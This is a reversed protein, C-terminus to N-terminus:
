EDKKSARSVARWGLAVIAIGISLYICVGILLFDM